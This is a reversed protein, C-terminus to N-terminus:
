GASRLKFLAKRAAKAVKKDPHGSGIAEIAPETDDGGVRWARDLMDSLGAPAAAQEAWGTAAVEPGWLGAVTALLEVWSEPDNGMEFISPDFRGTDVGYVLAMFDLGVAEFQQCTPADNPGLRLLAHYAGHRQPPSVEAMAAIMREVATEDGVALWNDLEAVAADNPLKAVATLLEVPSLHELSGPLPIGAMEAVLRHVLVKGLVDLEVRGGSTTDAGTTASADVLRVVGLEAFRGLAYRTDEVVLQSYFDLNDPDFRESESFSEWDYSEEIQDWTHRGFEDVDVPTETEYLDLLLGLMREDVEDVFWSFGYRSHREGSGASGAEFLMATFVADALEITAETALSARAGPVLTVGLDTLTLLDAQLAVQYILDLGALQDSAPADDDSPDGSHDQLDGTNLLQVLEFTDESSFEGMEGVGRSEGVYRVLAVLQRLMVADDLAQTLEDGGPIADSPAMRPAMLGSMPIGRTGLVRDREARPRQSFEELWEDMAFQDDLDVGEAQARSWLRKEAAWLREDAMESVFQDAMQEAGEAATEFMEARSPHREALFRMLAAAAPVVQPFEDPELIVNVPHLDLLVEAVDRLDWDDPAGGLFDCKVELLREVADSLRDGEQKTFERVLRDIARQQRNDIGNGQAMRARYHGEASGAKPSREDM